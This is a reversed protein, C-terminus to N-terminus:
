FRKMGVSDELDGSPVLVDPHSCRGRRTLLHSRPGLSLSSLSPKQWKLTNIQKDANNHDFRVLLQLYQVSGMWKWCAARVVTRTECGPTRPARSSTRGTRLGGRPPTSTWTTPTPKSNSRSALTATLPPRPWTSTRTASRATAKRPPCTCETATSTRGTPNTMFHSRTSSSSRRKNLLYPKIRFLTQCSFLQTEGSVKELRRRVPVFVDWHFIANEEWVRFNLIVTLLPSVATGYTGDGGFRILVILGSGKNKSDVSFIKTRKVKRTKVDQIQLLVKHCFVLHPVFLCLEFCLVM